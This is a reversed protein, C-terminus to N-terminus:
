LPLPVGCEAFTMNEAQHKHKRKWESFLDAYSKTIYDHAGVGLKQATVDIWAPPGEIEAVTGIPTLDIVVEGKGDSWEARFKEYIFIPQFGLPLLIQHMTQGDEIATEREARSKHPGGALGKAKHTLKWRDGYRRIRLLEGRRRLEGGNHDYLTNLEHTPPTLQTFGAKHLLQELAAIDSVLFKIEVEQPATM